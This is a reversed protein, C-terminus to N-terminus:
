TTHTVYLDRTFRESGTRVTTVQLVVGVLVPDTADAVVDPPMPAVVILLDDRAIGEPADYPVQVLFDAQQGVDDADVVTAAEGSLAQIRAPGAWYTPHPTTVTQQRAGDWGGPITGPKRLAVWARMAKTAVPSHSAGWDAPIVATDPRGQSRTPRPM